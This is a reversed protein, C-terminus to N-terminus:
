SCRRRSARRAASACTRSSSSRSAQASSGRPSHRGTRCRSCWASIRCPCTTATWRTTRRGIGRGRQRGRPLRAPPRLFRFGGLGRRQPRGRLRATRRLLRAGRRPRARSDRPSLAHTGADASGAARGDLDRGEAGQEDPLRDEGEGRGARVERSGRRARARHRRPALAHDHLGGRAERLHDNNRTEIRESKIGVEALQASLAMTFCGAHAAGLLEEPNTGPSGEFRTSYSYPTNSLVKSETTLTGKGDKLGGQWVATARREM